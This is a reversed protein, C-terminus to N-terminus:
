GGLSWDVCQYVIHLVWECPHRQPYKFSYSSVQDTLLFMFTDPHTPTPPLCKVKITKINGWIALTGISHLILGVCFQAVPFTDRTEVLPFLGKTLGGLAGTWNLETWNSLGIWSKTTGQVIACWAERDMMLERLKKLSLDMPDTIGYGDWERDDEEGWAKLREWCCPRKWHTLEECWTALTNFSQGRSQGFCWLSWSIDWRLGRRM